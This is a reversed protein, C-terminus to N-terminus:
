LIIQFAYWTSVPRGARRAPDFVWEGVSQMLRQNYRSDSTPPELKIQNRDVRGSETVFVQVTIEKGRANAPRGAPPIFVGRPTPPVVREL